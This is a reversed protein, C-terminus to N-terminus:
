LGRAKLCELYRESFSSNDDVPVIGLGKLSPLSLHRCDRKIVYPRIQSFYLFFSALIIIVLKFWNEKLWSKM